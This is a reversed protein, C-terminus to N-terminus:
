FKWNLGVTFQHTRFGYDSSLGYDAKGYDSYRYLADISLSETVAVEVGAGLTWGVHTAEPGEIHGSAFALGGTLYPMFVGADYGLRGRFSGVWSLGVDDGDVSIDSWAIDGVVGAVVGDTLYFNAGANVGVLWGAVDDASSGAYIDGSAYGAFGGVFVGEWNGSANVVGASMAPEDIMLDAAHVSSAASLAAAAALVSIALRKM